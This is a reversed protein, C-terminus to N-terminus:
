KNSDLDLPQDSQLETLHKIIIQELAATKEAQSTSSMTSSDGEGVETHSNMQGTTPASNIAAAGSTSKKRQPNQFKLPFLTLTVAWM